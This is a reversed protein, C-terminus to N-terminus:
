TCIWMKRKRLMQKQLRYEFMRNSDSMMFVTKKGESDAVQVGPSM